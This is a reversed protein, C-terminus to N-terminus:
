PKSSKQKFKNTMVSVLRKLIETIKKNRRLNTNYFLSIRSFHSIQGVAIHFYTHHVNYNVLYYYVKNISCKELCNICLAKYCLVVNTFYFAFYLLFLILLSPSLFIFYNPALNVLILM